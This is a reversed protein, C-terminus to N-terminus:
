LADTVNSTKKENKQEIKELGGLKNFPPPFIAVFIDCLLLIGTIFNFFYTLWLSEINVVKDRRM